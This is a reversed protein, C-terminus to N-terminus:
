RKSENNKEELNKKQEESIERTFMWGFPYIILSGIRRAMKSSFARDIWDKKENGENNNM